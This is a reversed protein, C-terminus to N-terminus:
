HSSDGTWRKSNHSEVLRREKWKRAETRRGFCGGPSSRTRHRSFRSEHRRMRNAASRSDGEVRSRNCTRWTRGCDRDAPDRLRQARLLRAAQGCLRATEQPPAAARDRAALERGCTALHYVVSGSEPMEDILRRGLEYGRRCCRDSDVRNGAQKYILGLQMLNELLELRLEPPGGGGGSARELRSCNEECMRQREPQSGLEWLRAALEHRALCAALLATTSEAGDGGLQDWPALAQRM